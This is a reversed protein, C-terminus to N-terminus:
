ITPSKEITKHLITILREPTMSAGFMPMGSLEKCSVLVGNQIGTRKPMRVGRHKVVLPIRVFCRVLSRIFKLGLVIENEAYKITM